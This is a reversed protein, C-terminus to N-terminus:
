IIDEVLHGRKYIGETENSETFHVFEVLVPKLGGFKDNIATNLIGNKKGKFCLAWPFITSELM